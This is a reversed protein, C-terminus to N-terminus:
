FLNINKKNSFILKIYKKEPSLNGIKADFGSFDPIIFTSKENLKNLFNPFEEIKIKEDNDDIFELFIPYSNDILFLKPGMKKKQTEISCDLYGILEKYFLLMISQEPPYIIIKFGYMTNTKFKKLHFIVGLDTDNIYEYEFEVTPFDQELFVLRSTETKSVMLSILEGWAKSFNIIFKYPNPTNVLKPTVWTKLSCTTLNKLFGAPCNDLCDNNFFVQNNLCVRECISFAPNYVLPPQCKECKRNTLVYEYACADCGNASSCEDCNAICNHCVGDSEFSKMPCASVCYTGDLKYGEVCSICDLESKCIKCKGCSECRAGKPFFGDPCTKLCEGNLYFDVKCATCDQETPGLCSSCASSCPLCTSNASNNYFGENCFCKRNFLYQNENCSTCNYFDDCEKCLFLCKVQYVDIIGVLSATFNLRITDTLPNDQFAYGIFTMRQNTQMGFVDQRVAQREFEISHAYHLSFLGHITATLNMIMFLGFYGNKQFDSYKMDYYLYSTPNMSMFLVNNYYRYGICTMTGQFIMCPTKGDNMPHLTFRKEYEVKHYVISSNGFYSFFSSFLFFFSPISLLTM